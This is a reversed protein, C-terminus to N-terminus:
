CIACTHIYAYLIDTVYPPVHTCTPTGACVEMRVVGAQGRPCAPHEVACQALLHSGGRTRHTLVSVHDRNELNGEFRDEQHWVQIEDLPLRQLEDIFVIGDDLALQADRSM